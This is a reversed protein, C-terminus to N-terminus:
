RSESPPLAQVVPESVSQAPAQTTPPLAQVMPESVSQVPQVPTQGNPPLTQVVPESVSQVPVQASLQVRAGAQYTVNLPANLYIPGRVGDDVAYGYRIFKADWDTVNAWYQEMDVYFREFAAEFRPLAGLAFADPDTPPALLAQQSIELAADCMYDHAPPLAFYNYVQTMYIERERTAQSGLRARYDRDLQRNVESLRKGHQDLFQKYAQLIPEYEPELCNLAAVNWGSRFNWITELPGIGANVTRRVGDLGKAPIALRRSAGGPPVPRLPTAVPAPAPPPPPPPPPPPAACAALFALGMAAVISRVHLNMKGNM